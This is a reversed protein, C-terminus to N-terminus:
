SSADHSRGKADSAELRARVTVVDLVEFERLKARHFPMQVPRLYRALSDDGTMATLERQGNFMREWAELMLRQVDPPMDVHLPMCLKDQVEVWVLSEKRLWDDPSYRISFQLRHDTRTWDIWHCTVSQVQCDNVLLGRPGSMGDLLPKIINDIDPSHVGQYRERENLLWVIRVEVEGSLLYRSDSVFAAVAEKVARRVDSAAQLSAPKLDIEFEL